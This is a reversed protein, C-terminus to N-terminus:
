RLAEAGVLTKSGPTRYLRYRGGDTFAAFVERSVQVEQNEVKLVYTVLRNQVRVTRTLAGTLPTVTGARLDAMIRGRNQAIVVVIVANIVTLSIGVINLIVSSNVSGLYILITAALGIGAVVLVGILLARRANRSLRDRQAASLRGARNEVLDDAGYGLANMMTTEATMM